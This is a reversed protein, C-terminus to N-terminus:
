TDDSAARREAEARRAERLAALEASQNVLTQYAHEDAMSARIAPVSLRHLARRALTVTISAASAITTAIQRAHDDLEDDPVVRSVIGLDLAESSSLRRGTLVLDATVASGCTAHLVAMGGTDPVVGHGVEPLGFRTDEACIRVDALLGRQFSGGLVWGKWAVVVPVDLDWLRQIGRHGRSMLRQHGTVDYATGIASVDRGSSWSPGEARWIVCRVDERGVLQEVADFLQADMADDFANHRDPRDNTITAIDDAVDLTVRGASLPVM